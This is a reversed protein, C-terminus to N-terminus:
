AATQYSLAIICDFQATLLSWDLPTAGLQGQRYFHITSGDCVSGLLFGSPLNVGSLPVIEANVQNVVPFPLGQIHASGAGGTGLSSVTLRGSVLVSRGTKIWRLPASALVVGTPATQATLVPAVTGDSQVPMAAQAAAIANAAANDALSQVQPLLANFETVFNALSAYASAMQPNFVSPPDGYTPFPTLPTLSM